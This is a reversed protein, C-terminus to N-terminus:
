PWLTGRLISGIVMHSVGYMEGLGRQTPLGRRAVRGTIEPQYAIRIEEVEKRTLKSRGNREGAAMTGHQRKDAHNNPRTDWRLNSLRNDAPNGNNHCGEMGEPCPGVFAELVLRHVMFWHKQGDRYLAVQHYGGKGPRSKLSRGMMTSFIEGERLVVYNEFGDVKIM